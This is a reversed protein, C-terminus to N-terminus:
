VEDSGAAPPKPIDSEIRSLAIGDEAIVRIHEMSSIYHEFTLGKVNQAIARIDYLREVSESPERETKCAAKTHYRVVAIAKDLGDNTAYECQNRPNEYRARQLEAIITETM